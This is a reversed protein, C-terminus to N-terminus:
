CSLNGTNDNGHFGDELANCTTIISQAFDFTFHALIWVCVCAVCVCVFVCVYQVCACM